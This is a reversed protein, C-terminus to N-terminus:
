ATAAFAEHHTITGQAQETGFALALCFQPPVGEVTLGPVCEFGFRNYYEPPGVLFCGQAGLSKLQSLGERVLATGVGQRQWVPLVSVPGLMHWDRSGDSITVPSFAIHGVVAGEIEAVLSITMAGAARLANVIFQETQRSVPHNEFALKTVEFIAEVDSERESRIKM